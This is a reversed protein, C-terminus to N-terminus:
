SLEDRKKKSFIIILMLLNCSGAVLHTWYELEWRGDSWAETEWSRDM